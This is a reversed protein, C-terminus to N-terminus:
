DDSEGVKEKMRAVNNQVSKEGIGRKDSVREADWEEPGDHVYVYDLAATPSDFKDIVDMIQSWPDAETELEWGQSVNDWRSHESDYNGRIATYGYAYLEKVVDMPLSDLISETAPYEQMESVAVADFPSLWTLDPEVFRMVYGTPAKLRGETVEM